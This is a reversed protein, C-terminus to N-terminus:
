KNVPKMKITNYYLNNYKNLIDDLKDIYKAKSVSNRYKYKRKLTRIFREAVAPKVENHTSHMEIDNDKLRLKLSRNCFKSGKDVTIKNAKHNSENSNTQHYHHYYRKQRKFSLGM